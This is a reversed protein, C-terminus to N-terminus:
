EVALLEVQCRPGPASALRVDVTVLPCGLGEALAVYLADYTSLSRRLQAARGPLPRTPRAVLPMMQLEAMTEDFSQGDLEGALNMRRLASAAEAYAIDPVFMANASSLARRAADGRRVRRALADALISADVVREPKTTM